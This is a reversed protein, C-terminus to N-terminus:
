HLTINRKFNDTKGINNFVGEANCIGLMFLYGLCVDKLIKDEHSISIGQQSQENIRDLACVCKDRVDELWHNDNNM